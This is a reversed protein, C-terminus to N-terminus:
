EGDKACSGAGPLLAVLQVADAVVPALTNSASALASSTQAVASMASAVLCAVQEPSTGADPGWADVAAAASVLDDHAPLLTSKCTDILAQDQTATAVDKCTQAALIWATEATEVAGRANARASNATSSAPTNSAGCGILALALVAPAVVVLARGTFLRAVASAIGPVNVGAHALLSFLAHMRPYKDFKKVFM